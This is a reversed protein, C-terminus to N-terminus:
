NGHNLRKQMLKIMSNIPKLLDFDAYEPKKWFERLTRFAIIRM